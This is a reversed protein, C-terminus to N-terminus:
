AAEADLLVLEILVAEEGMKFPYVARSTGSAYRTVFDSGVIVTPVTIVSAPEVAALKTRFAGAVLNAVEGMADALEDNVEGAEMGLMSGAIQRAAPVSSHVTVVGRRHGGFSVSAAVHVTWGAPPELGQPLQEVPQGIMMEFAESTSTLLNSTLLEPIAM